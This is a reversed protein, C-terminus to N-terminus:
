TADIKIKFVAKHGYFWLVKLVMFSAKFLEFTKSFLTVQTNQDFFNFFAADAGATVDLGVQAEFCGAFNGSSDISGTSSSQSASSTTTATSTAQTAFTSSAATETSQIASVVSSQPTLVCVCTPNIRTMTQSPAVATVTYDRKKPSPSTRKKVQKSAAAQAELTLILKASADLSLFVSSDVLNGLASIGIKITPIIHAEVSGTSQAGPSASLKLPTDAVQFSPEQTDNTPPFSVLAKEVHYNLGITLDVNVDLTAKAEVDIELSPGINLVGPFDLGPVITEFIPIKGSDLTGAVDAKLDVSGTLDATLGQRKGVIMSFQDFKPPAITGALNVGISIEAHAKSDVNINVNAKTPPCDLSQNVLSFPQDIDIPALTTTNTINFDNSFAFSDDQRGLLSSPTFIPASDVAPINSGQISFSVAGSNSVDIASFDTDLSLAKVQPIVDRGVLRRAVSPPLSQDEPIWAKAVRAFASQGCQEPLRVVKDVAGTGQYLHDCGEAVCVLRIDQSLADPSCGIIEWGAASTIDSIADVSGWIKLTGSASSSSPLSYECVGDLCPVTWDNVAKTAWIAFSFLTFFFSLM